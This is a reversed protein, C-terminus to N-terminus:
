NAAIIVTGNTGAYVPRGHTMGAFAILVTVVLAIRLKV